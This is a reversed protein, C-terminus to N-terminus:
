SVTRLPFLEPHSHIFGAMEPESRLLDSLKTSQLARQMAREVAMWLARISCDSNRVCTRENGAHEGCFETSYFSDGLVALVAGINVQDAPRALQYGGKRGRVSKVLGGRRLLRMLKHVHADSLGEREAIEPTTTAAEHGRAVQLLCRLGYEEQATLRMTAGEEPQPTAYRFWVELDVNDSLGCQM